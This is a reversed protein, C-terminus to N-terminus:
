RFTPDDPLSTPLFKRPNSLFEEWVRCVEEVSRLSDVTHASRTESGPQMLDFILLHQGPTSTGVTVKFPIENIMFSYNQMVGPTRPILRSFEEPDPADHYRM